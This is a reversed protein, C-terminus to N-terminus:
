IKYKSIIIGSNSLSQDFLTKVSDIKVEQNKLYDIIQQHSKGTYDPNFNHMWDMMAEDALTLAAKKSDINQKLKNTDLSSNESKLTNMNLYISDLKRKNQLILDMRAMLVDHKDIVQKQLKKQDEKNNDCGTFFM